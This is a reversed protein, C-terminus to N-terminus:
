RAAPQHPLSRVKRLLRTSQRRGNLVDCLYQYTVGLVPAATRYSWGKRKFTVKEANAIM